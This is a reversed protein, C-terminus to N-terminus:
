KGVKSAFVEPSVFGDRQRHSLRRGEVEVNSGNPCNKRVTIRVERWRHGVRRHSPLSLLVKFDQLTYSSDLLNEFFVCWGQRSYFVVLATCFNEQVESKFGTVLLGSSGFSYFKTCPYINFTCICKTHFVLSFAFYNYLSQVVAYVVSHVLLLLM